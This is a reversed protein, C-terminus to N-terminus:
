RWRSGRAPTAVVLPYTPRTAGEIKAGSRYWQYALTAGATWTGANATLTSGVKATGSITPIARGANGPRRRRHGGLGRLRLGGAPRCGPRHGDREIEQRPRGTRPHLHLRDCEPDSHRRAEVPLHLVARFPGAMGRRRPSSRALPRPPTTSPRRGPWWPRSRNKTRCSAWPLPRMWWDPVAGEPVPEPLPRVTEKLRAEVEAPTLSPSAAVLLAVVGSVHPAASSTGEAYSYADGEGYEPLTIGFNTTSLIGGEDGFDFTGGPATVDIAEGFNSYGTLSGDPGSAAVAIVHDCNAPVSYQADMSENGAAAVVVSGAAVAADVAGQLTASCEGYGGLSLNIVDAPTDTSPVGLVTGGSAWIIADGIDSAYGGCAGLARVPLIRAEPAVGAIGKGNGTVAAITGAVHTGHWSSATGEAGEGCQDGATWDGEDSPDADRGDGDHPDISDYEPVGSYSIMDYGPLVNADLDSHATIGSDVVAVVVGEGRSIDWAAPVNIGAFAEPGAEPDSFDWQRGFHTDNPATAAPKLLLDPEVYEIAPDAELEAVLDAAEAADLERDTTVVRAGTATTSVEQVETGLEEAPQEYTDARKAAKRGADDTFKVIFRDVAAPEATGAELTIAPTTASFASDQVGNDLAGSADGASAASAPAAVTAGLLVAAALSATASLFRSRLLPM